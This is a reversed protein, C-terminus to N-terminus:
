DRAKHGRSVRDTYEWIMERMAKRDADSRGPPKKKEDGAEFPVVNHKKMHEEYARRGEVTSGDLPSVFAPIDGHVMTHDDIADNIPVEVMCGQERDYRFRRRTV